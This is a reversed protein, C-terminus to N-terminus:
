ATCEQVEEVAEILTAKIAAVPCGLDLARRSARLQRWELWDLDEEDFEETVAAAMYDTTAQRVAELAEQQTM